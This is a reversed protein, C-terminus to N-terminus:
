RTIHVDAGGSGGFSGFFFGWAVVLLVLGAIVYLVTFVIPPAGAYKCIAYVIACILVLGIITFLLSGVSHGNVLLDCLLNM